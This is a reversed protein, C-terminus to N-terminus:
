TNTEIFSIVSTKQAASVEQRGLFISEAYQKLSIDSSVESGGLQNRYSLSAFSFDPDLEKTKRHLIQFIEFCEDPKGPKRGQKIFGQIALHFPTTSDKGLSSPNLCNSSLVSEIFEIDGEKCLSGFGAGCLRKKHTEKDTILEDSDVTVLAETLSTITAERLAIYAAEKALQFTFRQGTPDLQHAPAGLEIFLQLAKNGLEDGKAKRACLFFATQNQLDTKNILERVLQKNELSSQSIAKLRKLDTELIEFESRNALEMLATHGLISGAQSSLKIYTEDTRIDFTSSSDAGLDIAVVSGAVIKYQNM